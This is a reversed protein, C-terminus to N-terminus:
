RRSGNTRSNSPGGRSTSTSPGPQNTESESESSVYTDLFQHYCAAVDVENHDRCYDVINLDHLYILEDIINRVEINTFM